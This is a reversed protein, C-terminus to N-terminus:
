KGLLKRRIDDLEANRKETEAQTRVVPPKDKAVSRPRQVRQPPYLTNRLEEIRRRLNRIREIAEDNDDM